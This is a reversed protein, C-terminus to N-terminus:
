IGEFFVGLLLLATAAVFAYVGLTAGDIGAIAPLLGAFTGLVGVAVLILSVAITVLRPAHQTRRM